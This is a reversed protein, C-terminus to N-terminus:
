LQQRATLNAVKDSELQKPNSLRRSVATAYTELLFRYRRPQFGRGKLAPAFRMM